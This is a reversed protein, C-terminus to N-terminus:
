VCSVHVCMSICIDAAASSLFGQGMIPIGVQFCVIIRGDDKTGVTEALKGKRQYKKDYQAQSASRVPVEPPKGIEIREYRASVGGGRYERAVQGLFGKSGQEVVFEVPKRVCCLAECDGPDTLNAARIVM